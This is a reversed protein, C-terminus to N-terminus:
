PQHEIWFSAQGESYTVTTGGTASNNHHSNRRNGTHPTPIDLREGAGGDQSV